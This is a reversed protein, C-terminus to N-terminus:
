WPPRPPAAPHPLARRAELLRSPMDAPLPMIMQGVQVTVDPNNLYSLRALKVATKPDIGLRQSVRISRYFDFTYGTITNQLYEPTDLITDRKVKKDTRVEQTITTALGEKYEEEIDLPNVPSLYEAEIM